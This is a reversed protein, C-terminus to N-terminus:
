SRRARYKAANTLAEAVVYYAAVEVPDPLRRHIALELEVPVASRRALAKLAPGLGGRSLIAPHIGRSLEQLETSIGAVRTVLESIQEKLPEPPRGPM